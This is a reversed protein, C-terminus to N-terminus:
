ARPTAPPTQEHERYQEVEEVSKMTKPAVSEILTVLGWAILAYVLMALLVSWEFVAGEVQNVGFVAEFPAMFPASIQYVFETFAADPNAGFLKLGFRLILLVEIVGLVWYILRTFLWTGSHRTKHVLIQQDAMQTQAM